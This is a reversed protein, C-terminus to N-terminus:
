TTVHIAAANKLDCKLLCIQETRTGNFSNTSINCPPQRNRNRILTGDTVTFLPFSKFDTILQTNNLDIVYNYHLM